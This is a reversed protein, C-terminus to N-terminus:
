TNHEQLGNEGSRELEQQKKLYEFESKLVNADHIVPELKSLLYEGDQYKSILETHIAYMYGRISHLISLCRDVNM